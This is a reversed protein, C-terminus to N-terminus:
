CISILYNELKRSEDSWSINEVRILTETKKDLFVFKIFKGIDSKRFGVFKLTNINLKTQKLKKIVEIYVRCNYKKIIEQSVSPNDTTKTM